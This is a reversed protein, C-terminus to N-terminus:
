SCDTYKQSIKLKRFVTLSNQLELQVHCRRTRWWTKTDVACALFVISWTSKCIQSCWHSFIKLVRILATTKKELWRMETFAKIVKGGLYANLWAEFVCNLHGSIRCYQVSHRWHVVVGGYKQSEHYLFILICNKVLNIRYWGQFKLSCQFFKDQFIKTFVIIYLSCPCSRSYVKIGLSSVGIM